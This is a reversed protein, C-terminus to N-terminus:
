LNSYDVEKKFEMTNMYETIMDEKIEVVQEFVVGPVEYEPKYEIKVKYIQTKPPLPFEGEFNKTLNSQDLEKPLGNSGTITISEVCTCPENPHHGSLFFKLKEAEIKYGFNYNQRYTFIGMKINLLEIVKRMFDDCKMLFTLAAQKDYRTPKLNCLVMKKALPPMECFPATGMSSGLVIALDALQAHKLGEQLPEIPTQQGYRVGSKILKGKCQPDDCFRSTPPCIVTRQYNKKCTICIEVYANGFLEALHENKTGSRRHMNDHNSSVVFKVIGAEILRTIAVHSYTPMKLDLKDERLNLLSGMANEGTFTGIGASASIGV